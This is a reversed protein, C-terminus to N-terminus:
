EFRHWLPRLALHNMRDLRVSSVFVTCYREVDLSSKNTIDQREGLSKVVMVRSDLAKVRFALFHKM